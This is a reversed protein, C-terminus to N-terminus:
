QFFVFIFVFYLNQLLSTLFIKGSSHVVIWGSKTLISSNKSLSLSGRKDAFFPPSPLSHFCIPSLGRNQVPPPPVPFFPSFIIFCSVAFFAIPCDALNRVLSPIRQATGTAPTSFASLFFGVPLKKQIRRIPLNDPVKERVFARASVLSISSQEIEHRAVCFHHLFTQAVQRKFSLNKCAPFILNGKFGCGKFLGARIKLKTQGDLLKAIEEVNVDNDKEFKEKELFRKFEKVTM